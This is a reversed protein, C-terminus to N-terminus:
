LVARYPAMDTVGPGHEEYHEVRETFARRARDATAGTVAGIQAWTAGAERAARIAHWREETLGTVLEHAAQVAALPDGLPLTDRYRRIREASEHNGRQEIDRIAQDLTDRHSWNEWMQVLDPYTHTM